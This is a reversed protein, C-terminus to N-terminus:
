SPFPDTGFTAPCSRVAKGTELDILPFVFHFHDPRPTGDARPKKHQVCIRPATPSIGYRECVLKLVVMSADKHEARPSCKVHIVRRVARPNTAAFGGLFPVALALDLPVGQSLDERILVRINTDTRALHRALGDGRTFDTKVIM